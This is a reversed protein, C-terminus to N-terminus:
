GVKVAGGDDDADQAVLAHPSVRLARALRRLTGISVARRTRAKWFTKQSLTARRRLEGITWLRAARAADIAEPALIVTNAKIMNPWYVAAFHKRLM